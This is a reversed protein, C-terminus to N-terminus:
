CLMELFMELWSSEEYAIMEGKSIDVHESLQIVIYQLHAILLFSLVIIQESPVSM